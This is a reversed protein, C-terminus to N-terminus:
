SYFILHEDRFNVFKEQIQTNGTIENWIRELVEEFIGKLEENGKVKYLETGRMCNEYFKKEGDLINKLEYVLGGDDGKGLRLSKSLSCIIVCTLSLTIQHSPTFLPFCKTL